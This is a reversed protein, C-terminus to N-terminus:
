PCAEVVIQGWTSPTPSAVSYSGFTRLDFGLQPLIDTLWPDTKFVYCADEQASWEALDRNRYQYKLAYPRHSDGYPSDLGQYYRADIALAYETLIETSAYANTYQVDPTIYCTDCDLTDAYTVAQLFDHYYFGEADDAWSSFYAHFFLASQLGFVALFLLFLKRRQKVTYYIGIGAFIVHSYFLINLRNVNVSNISIGVFLSCLWYLLLFQFGTRRPRDKCHFALYVALVLGSFVLPMSCLYVTGFDDLMNWPLDPSQLFARKVLAQLNIALQGAFDESFFLMDSVRQTGAFRQMTVFPLSVTDWEMFNILMTGYIPWSIGFYVAVCVAIRRFSVQKTVLLLLGALLLFLPVMYFSVGYTYMCLAFFVMSVWLCPRKQLGRQLFYLGLVFAHPFLNCDLSWRSQMFHWPNVALFLLTLVAADRSIWDRVLGYVALAGAISWLLLPLRIAATNLGFLWIFPVMSYSLLASMQGFGWAELHAPLWTGFRDTGYRSLAFADVAAMAEDQNVGGPVRGFSVLRTGILLALALLLLAKRGKESFLEHSAALQTPQKIWSWFFFLQLGLLILLCIPNVYLM